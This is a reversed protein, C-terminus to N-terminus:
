IKPFSLKFETYEFEKSRCTIDGDLNQMVLKCYALGIGTGHYTRSFFREFIHPLVKANIGQGTDKFYLFNYKDGNEIRISINGKGAARVYYIANKLLNFLVHIILLEDGKFM